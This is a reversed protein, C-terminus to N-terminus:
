APNLGTGGAPAGLLPHLAVDLDGGTALWILHYSASAGDDFSVEFAGGGEAEAQWTASVM